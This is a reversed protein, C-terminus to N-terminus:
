DTPEPNSGWGVWWHGYRNIALLAYRFDWSRTGLGSSYGFRVWVVSVNKKVTRSM